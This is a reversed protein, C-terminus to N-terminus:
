FSGYFFMSDWKSIVDACRQHMCNLCKCIQRQRDGRPTRIDDGRIEEMSGDLETALDSHAAVEVERPQEALAAETLPPLALEPPHTLFADRLQAASAVADAVDKISGVASTVASTACTIAGAVINRHRVLVLLLVAAGVAAAVKPGNPHKM